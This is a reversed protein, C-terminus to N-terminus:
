LYLSTPRCQILSLGGRPAQAPRPVGGLPLSTQRSPMCARAFATDLPSFRLLTPTPLPRRTLRPPPSLPPPPTPASYSQPIPLNLRRLPLSPPPALLLPPTPRSAPM